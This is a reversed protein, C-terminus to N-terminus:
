LSDVFKRNDNGQQFARLRFRFYEQGYAAHGIAATAKLLLVDVSEVHCREPSSYRTADERHREGCAPLAQNRPSIIWYHATNPCLMANSSCVPSSYKLVLVGVVLSGSRGVLNTENHMIMEYVWYLDFSMQVFSSAVNFAQSWGFVENVHENILVLEAFLTRSHELQRKISGITSGQDSPNMDCSALPMTSERLQRELERLNCTLLSIHLLHFM